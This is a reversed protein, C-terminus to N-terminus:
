VGDTDMTFFQPVLRGHILIGNSKFMIFNPLTTNKLGLVYKTRQFTAISANGMVVHNVTM